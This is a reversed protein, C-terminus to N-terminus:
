RRGAYWGWAHIIEEGGQCHWAFCLAIIGRNSRPSEMMFVEQSQLPLHHPTRALTEDKPQDAQAKFIKGPLSTRRKREEPKSEKWYKDKTRGELFFSPHNPNFNLIAASNVLGVSPTQSYIHVALWIAPGLSPARSCVRMLRV